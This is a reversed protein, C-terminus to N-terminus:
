RHYGQPTLAQVFDIKSRFEIPQRKAQYQLAQQAKRTTLFDNLATVNRM